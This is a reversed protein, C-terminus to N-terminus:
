FCGFRIMELTDIECNPDDGALDVEFGVERRQCHLSRIIWLLDGSSCCRTLLLCADEERRLKALVNVDISEGEIM